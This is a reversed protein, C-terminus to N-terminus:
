GETELREECVRWPDPTPVSILAGTMLQAVGVQLQLQLAAGRAFM